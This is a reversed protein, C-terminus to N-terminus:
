LIITHVDKNVMQRIFEEDENMFHIVNIFLDVLDVQVGVGVEGENARFLDMLCFLTIESFIQVTLTKDNVVMNNLLRITLIIIEKDDKYYILNTNIVHIINNELLPYYFISNFTGNTINVLLQLSLKNTTVDKFLVVNDILKGILTRMNEAKRNYFVM